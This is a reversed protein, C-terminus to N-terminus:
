RLFNSPKKNIKSTMEVSLTVGNRGKVKCWWVNGNYYWNSRKRITGWQYVRTLLLLLIWLNYCEGIIVLARSGEDLDWLIIDIVRIVLMPKTINMFRLPFCNGFILLPRDISSFPRDISPEISRCEQTSRDILCTDAWFKTVTVPEGIKVGRIWWGLTWIECSLISVMRIVHKCWEGRKLNMLDVYLM